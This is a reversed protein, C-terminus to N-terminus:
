KITFNYKLLERVQTESVSEFCSPYESKVFDIIDDIYKDVQEDFTAQFNKGGKLIWANIILDDQNGVSLNKNQPGKVAEMIVVAMALAIAASAVIVAVFYAVVPVAAVVDPPPPQVPPGSPGSYPTILEPNISELYQKFEDKKTLEKIQEQYYGDNFFGINGILNKEKCLQLFKKIDGEKIANAIDTDSLALILKLLGDDLNIDGRYQYKNLYVQPNKSFDTAISPDSIIEKSLKDLFKLYEYDGNKLNLSLPTAIRDNLQILNESSLYIMDKEDIVTPCCSTYLISTALGGSLLRIPKGYYKM